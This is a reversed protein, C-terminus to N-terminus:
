IFTSKGKTMQVLIRTLNLTKLWQSGAYSHKQTIEHGFTEDFTELFVILEAKRELLSEFSM